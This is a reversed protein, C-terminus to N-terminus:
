REIWPMVLAIFGYGAWSIVTVAIMAEWFERGVGAIIATVSGAFFMAVLWVKAFFKTV